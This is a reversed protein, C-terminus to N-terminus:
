AKQGILCMGQPDFLINWGSDLTPASQPKTRNANSSTSPLCRGSIRASPPGDTPPQPLHVCGCMCACVRTGVTIPLNGGTERPRVLPSFSPLVTRALTLPRPLTQQSHCLTLLEVARGHHWRLLERGPGSAGRGRPVGNRDPAHDSPELFFFLTPTSAGLFACAKRSSPRM